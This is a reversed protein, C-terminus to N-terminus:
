DGSFQELVVVIGTNLTYKIEMHIPEICDNPIYRRM